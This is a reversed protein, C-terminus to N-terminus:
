KEIGMKILLKNFRSDSRLGDFFPDCNLMIMWNSREKFGKELMAFARDKEGLGTYIWAVFCPDVM